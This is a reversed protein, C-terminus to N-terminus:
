LKTKQKQIFEELEAAEDSGLDNLIQLHKEALDFNANTM